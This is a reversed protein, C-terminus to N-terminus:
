AARAGLGGDGDSFWGTLTKELEGFGAVQCIGSQELLDSMVPRFNETYPGVVTPKGCFCPEIM